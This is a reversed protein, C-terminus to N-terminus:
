MIVWDELNKKKTQKTQKDKHPTFTNEVVTGERGRKEMWGMAMAVSM